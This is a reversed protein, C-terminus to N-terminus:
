TDIAVGLAAAIFRVERCPLKEGCGLCTASSAPHCGLVATIATRMADVDPQSYGECCGFPAMKAHIGAVLEHHRTAADTM